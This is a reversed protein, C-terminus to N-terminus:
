WCISKQECRYLFCVQILEARAQWACGVAAKVVIKKRKLGGLLHRVIKRAVDRHGFVNAVRSDEGWGVVVGGGGDSGAKDGRM